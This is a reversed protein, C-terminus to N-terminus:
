SEDRQLGLVVFSAETSRPGTARLSADDERRHWRNPGMGVLDRVAEASLEMPYRVETREALRFHQAFREVVLAEKGPQIGLLGFEERLDALHADGPIVILAFGGPELVRAFEDPNRPAFVDLLISASADELYLRRNVDAVFFRTAPYRKAALRVAPKSLDTGLFSVGPGLAASLRDAISGIYYGEGCGVELITTPSGDDAARRQSREREIREVDATLTELLPAFHGEDFFRRRAQLMDPTDGVMGSVRHQSPLLNVYGERAVDFTHGDRCALAAGTARLPADCIPCTLPLTHTSDDIDTAM